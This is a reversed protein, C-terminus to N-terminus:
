RGQNQEILRALEVLSQRQNVSTSARQRQYEAALEIERDADRDQQDAYEDTLEIEWRLWLADEVEDLLREAELVDRECMATRIRKTLGYVVNQVMARSADGRVVLAIFPRAPANSQVTRGYLTSM